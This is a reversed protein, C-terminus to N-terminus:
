LNLLTKSFETRLRGSGGPAAQPRGSGGPTALLRKSATDHRISGDSPTQFADNICMRVVQWRPGTPM